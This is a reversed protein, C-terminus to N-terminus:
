QKRELYDKLKNLAIEYGPGTMKDIFIGYFKEWPYWNLFTVAEWQIQRGNHQPLEMVTIRNKITNEGPATLVFSIANSDVGTINVNVKRGNYLIDCQEPLGPSSINSFNAVTNKDAFVPHWLKWNKLHRIYSLISDQGIQNNVVVMRTVKVNSPIILSFLTIIISLGLLGAFFVKILRLM